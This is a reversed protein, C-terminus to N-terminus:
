VITWAHGDGNGSIAFFRHDHPRDGSNQCRVVGDVFHDHDVVARKVASGICDPLSKSGVVPHPQHNLFVASFGFGQVESILKRRRGDNHCDIRIRDQSGVGYFKQDSVECIRFDARDRAVHLDTVPAIKQGHQLCDLVDGRLVKVTTGVLREVPDHNNRAGDARPAHFRDIRRRAIRRFRQDFVRIQRDANM